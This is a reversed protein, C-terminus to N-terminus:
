VELAPLSARLEAPVALGAAAIRVACAALWRDRLLPHVVKEGNEIRSISSDPIELILSLAQQTLGAQIRYSALPSPAWGRYQGGYYPILRNVM